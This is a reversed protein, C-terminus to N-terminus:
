KKQQIFILWCNNSIHVWISYCACSQLDLSYTCSAPISVSEIIRMFKALLTVLQDTSSLVSNRQECLMYCVYSCEPMYLKGLFAILWTNQLVGLKRVSYTQSVLPLQVCEQSSSLATVAFRLCLWFAKIFVLMIRLSYCHYFVAKLNLLRICLSPSELLSYSWYNQHIGKWTSKQFGLVCLSNSFTVYSHVSLFVGTFCSPTLCNFAQCFIKKHTWNWM